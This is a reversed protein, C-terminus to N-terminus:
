ANNVEEMGDEALRCPLTLPQTIQVIDPNANLGQLVFPGKPLHTIVAGEQVCLFPSKYPNGRSIGQGAKGSKVEVAYWGELGRMDMASLMSVLLGHPLAASMSDDLAFNTDEEISFAGKGTSSDRGFGLLGIRRLRELLAASDETQAYIHYEQGEAPWYAHSVFLGGELATNSNRAITVHMEQHRKAAPIEWLGPNKCFDAFLNAVSLSQCHRKWVPYPLFRKKRYKKFLSLAEFASLPKGDEGCFAGKTLLDAFRKRPLPPLKPAFVTDRPMASSLVFPPRGDMFASIEAKLAQEGEDEALRYLLLGALTDSRLPTGWASQPKLIYRHVAM